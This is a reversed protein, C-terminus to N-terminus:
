GTRALEVAICRDMVVHLGVAEARRCADEDVVGYQTWIAHAGVAIAEDVIDSVHESRRFINVIDIPSPVSRLDPWAPIGNWREITPNVPIVTYGNALLAQAIRYSDRYPKDSLGVVAVHTSQQLLRPIDENM